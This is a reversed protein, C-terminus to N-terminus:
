YLIRWCFSVPEQSFHSTRSSSCSVCLTPRSCVSTGAALFLECFLAGLSPPTDFLCLRWSVSSGAALAPVVFFTFYRQIITQLICMCIRLGMRTYVFREQLRIEFSNHLHEAWLSAPCLKGSLHPRKM